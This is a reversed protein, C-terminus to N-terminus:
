CGRDRLRRRERQGVGPRQAVDPPRQLGALRDELTLALRAAIRRRPERGGEPVVDAAHALALPEGGLSDPRSVGGAPQLHM